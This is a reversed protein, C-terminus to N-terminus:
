HPGKKMRKWPVRSSVAAHRDWTFRLGEEAAVTIGVRPTVTIPPRGTAAVLRVRAHSALLDLDNDLLTLALGRCLNGPGRLLEHAPGAIGRRRRVIQEGSEVSAARLLVAGAVGDPETVINACHHVGYSLYVYLHAPERFMVSARPTPGRFAHSAPDATGLYAETEVIRAVVAADTDSDVALACGILDRAVTVTPRAFWDRALAVPAAGRRM